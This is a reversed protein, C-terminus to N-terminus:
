KNKTKKQKATSTGKTLNYVKYFTYPSLGFLLLAGVMILEEQQPTQHFQRYRYYWYGFFLGGIVLVVITFFLNILNNTKFLM